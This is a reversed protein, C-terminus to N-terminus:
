RPTRSFILILACQLDFEKMDENLFYKELQKKIKKDKHRLNYVDTPPPYIFNTMFIFHVPNDCAVYSLLFKM